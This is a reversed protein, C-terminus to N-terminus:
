TAPRGVPIRDQATGGIPPCSLAAIVFSLFRIQVGRTDGPAPPATLRPKQASPWQATNACHRFAPAALGIGKRLTRQNARAKIQM